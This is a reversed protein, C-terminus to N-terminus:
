QPSLSNHNLRHLCKRLIRPIGPLVVATRNGSCTRMGAHSDRGVLAHLICTAHGSAFRTGPVAGCGRQPLPALDTACAARYIAMMPPPILRPPAFSYPDYAHSICSQHIPRAFTAANPFSDNSQSLSSRAHYGMRVCDSNPLCMSRSFPLRKSCQLNIHAAAHIFISVQLSVLEDNSEFISATM